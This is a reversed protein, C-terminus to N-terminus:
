ERMRRVEDLLALYNLSDPYKERYRELYGRFYDLSFGAQWLGTPLNHFADALDAAQQAKGEWGAARIELLALYLMRCLKRKQEDTPLQSDTFPIM